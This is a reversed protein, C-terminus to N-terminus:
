VDKFPANDPLLFVHMFPLLVLLIIFLVSAVTVILFLKTHKRFYTIYSVITLLLSSLVIKDLMGTHGGVAAETAIRCKKNTVELCYQFTSNEPSFIFFMSLYFMNLVLSMWFLLLLFLTVLSKFTLNRKIFVDLKLVTFFSRLPKEGYKNDQPNGQKFLLIALIIVSAISHFLDLSPTFLSALFIVFIGVAWRGSYGLDHLRKTYLNLAYAKMFWYTFTFLSLTSVAEFSVNALNPHLYENFVALIVSVLHYLFFSTRNLRGKFLPFLGQM